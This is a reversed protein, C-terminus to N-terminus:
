HQWAPVDAISAARCRANVCLYCRRAVKRCRIARNIFIHIIDIIAALIPPPSRACDQRRLCFNFARSCHASRAPSNRVYDSHAPVAGIKEDSPGDQEGNKVGNTARRAGNKVGNRARAGGSRAGNRAPRPRPPRM